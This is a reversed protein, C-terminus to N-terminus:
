ELGRASKNLFLFRHPWTIQKFFFFIFKSIHVSLAARSAAQPPRAQLSFGTISHEGDLTCGWKSLATNERYWVQEEVNFDLIHFTSEVELDM